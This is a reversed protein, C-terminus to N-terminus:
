QVRLLIPSEKWLGELDYYRRQSPSFVHVIVDSFDLLIWGTDPKGELHSPSLSFDKRATELIADLIAKLQRESAGSCLVFYDAFLCHAHIDMLIINEGKRDEIADVLRRALDIAKSKALNRSV